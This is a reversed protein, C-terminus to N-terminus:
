SIYVYTKFPRSFILQIYTGLELVLFDPAPSVQRALSLATKRVRQVLNKFRKLVIAVIILKQGGVM